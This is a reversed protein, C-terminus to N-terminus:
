KKAWKGIMRQHGSYMEKDSPYRELDLEIWDADTKIEGKENCRFVATEFFGDVTYGTDVVVYGNLSQIVDRFRQYRLKPKKM